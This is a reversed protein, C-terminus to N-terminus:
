NNRKRKMRYAWKGRLSLFHSLWRSVAGDTFKMLYGPLIALLITGMGVVVGPTRAFFCDWFSTMQSTAMPNGFLIWLAIMTIIVYTSDMLVKLTSFSKECVKTLAYVTMEASLMWAECAVELSVGVATIVSGIVILLIRGGLTSLEMPAVIDNCIDIMYGFILTAVIQFLYKLKFRKRLILVQLLLLFMNVIITFQGLTPGLCLSLVYPPCSLASTGLNSKVSFAIGLAVLFLGATAIIYRIIIEDLSDKKM